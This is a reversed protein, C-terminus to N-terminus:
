KLQRMWFSGVRDTEDFGEGDIYDDQPFQGATGAYRNTPIHRGVVRDLMTRYSPGGEAQIFPQVNSLNERYQRLTLVSRPLLAAQPFQTSNDLLDYNSIVRSPTTFLKQLTGAAADFAPREKKLLKEYGKGVRALNVKDRFSLENYIKKKMEKPLRTLGAYHSHHSM